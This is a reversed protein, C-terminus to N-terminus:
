RKMFTTFGTKVPRPNLCGGCPLGSGFIVVRVYGGRRLYERGRANLRVGVEQRRGGRRKIDIPGDGLLLRRGATLLTVRGRCGDPDVCTLHFLADRRSIAPQVTVRSPDARRSRLWSADECDRSLRDRKDTSEVLDSGWGCSVLDRANDSNDFIRDDGGGGLVRDAGSEGALSDGARGGEIRDAGEGGLLFAGADTALMVDPGKGGVVRSIGSLSDHEGRAGAVGAPLDVTVRKTRLAYSFSSQAPHGIITDSAAEGDREGDRIFDFEYPTAPEGGRLEDSGGGGIITDSGAGGDVLDDGSGGALREPPDAGQLTDNGDGGSVRTLGLDDDTEIQVRDDGDGLEVRRFRLSDGSSSCVVRSPGDSTCHGRPEIEAGADEFTVQDGTITVTVDNAEGPAGEYRVDLNYTDPLGQVGEEVFVRTGTVTAADAAIPFMGIVTTAIAATMLALRKVDGRVRM